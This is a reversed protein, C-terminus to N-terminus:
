RSRWPLIRRLTDDKDVLHHKLAALVHLAILGLLAWALWEHTQQWFAFAAKDRPVLAPVKFLGFWTLPFGAASNQLWGTLPMALMLTYLLRHTYAATTVQWAPISEALFPPPRHVRWLLRVLALAMVTLGVWKHWTYVEIKAPSNKLGTMWLGVGLMGVIALAMLWHLAIAVGSYRPTPEPAFSFAPDRPM